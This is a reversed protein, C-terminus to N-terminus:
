SPAKQNFYKTDISKRTDLNTDINTDANTSLHEREMKNNRDMGLNVNGRSGSFGNKYKLYQGAVFGNVPLM